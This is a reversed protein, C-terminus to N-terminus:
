RGAGRIIWHVRSGVPWEAAIVDQILQASNATIREVIKRHRLVTLVFRGGRGGTVILLYTSIAPLPKLQSVPQVNIFHPRM